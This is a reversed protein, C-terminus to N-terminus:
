VHHPRQMQGSQTRFLTGYFDKLTEHNYDLQRPQHPREVASRIIDALQIYNGLDFFKIMQPFYQELELFTRTRSLVTIKQLEIAQSVPGSASQGIELYPFVAVDCAAIASAFEYDDPSGFFHIRDVISKSKRYIEARVENTISATNSGNVTSGLNVISAAKRLEVEDPGTADVLKKVYPNVSVWPKVSEPHVEGFIALLYNDPLERMARIVVEMGKYDSLFGFTGIITKGRGMQKDLKERYKQAEAPLSAVWGKRMYSLPHDVVRALGVVYKFYDRDRPTHAVMTLLGAQDLRRLLNHTQMVYLAHGSLRSLPSGSEDSRVVTHATIIVPKRVTVLHDVIMRLRKVMSRYSGGLLGPEWQLNVIDCFEIGKLLSELSQDGLKSVRKAPHRLLFQDLPFIKIEFDSSLLTDLTDAFSAIGCRIKHTSIIAVKIM